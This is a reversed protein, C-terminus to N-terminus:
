CCKAQAYRARQRAESFRRWEEASHPHGHAALHRQYASEDALERLLALIFRGLRRM